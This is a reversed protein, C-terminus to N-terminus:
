IMIKTLILLLLKGVRVVLLQVRVQLLVLLLLLHHVQRSVQLQQIQRQQPLQSNQM